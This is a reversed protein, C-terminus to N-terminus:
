KSLRGLTTPGTRRAKWASSRCWWPDSTGCISLRPRPKTKVRRSGAWRFAVAGEALRLFGISPSIGHPAAPVEVLYLLDLWRAIPADLAQRGVLAPHMQPKAHLAAVDAAAVIRGVSVGAGMEAVRLM